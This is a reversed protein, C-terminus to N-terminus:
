IFIPQNEFIRLTEGVFSALAEPEDDHIDFVTLLKATTM